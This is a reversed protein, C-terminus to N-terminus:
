FQRYQYRPPKRRRQNKKGREREENRVRGFLRPSFKSREFGVMLQDKAGSRLVKTFNKRNFSTGSCIAKKQYTDKRKKTSNRNKAFHPM